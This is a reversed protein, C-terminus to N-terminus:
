NQTALTPMKASMIEALNKCAIDLKKRSEPTDSQKFLQLMQKLITTVQQSIDVSGSSGGSLLQQLYKDLLAFNSEAQALIEVADRDSFDASSELRDILDQLASTGDQIILNLKKRVGADEFWREGIKAWKENVDIATITGDEPLALAVALASYGTFFGVEICKKAGVMKAFVQLASGEDASIQMAQLAGMKNAHERCQKLVPHERLHSAVYQNMKKDGHTTTKELILKDVVEQNVNKISNVQALGNEAATPM